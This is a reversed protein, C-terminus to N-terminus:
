FLEKINGLLRILLGRDEEPLSACHGVREALSACTVSDAPPSQTELLSAQIASERKVLVVTDINAAEALGLLDCPREM